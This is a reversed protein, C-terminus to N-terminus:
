KAHHVGYKYKLIIDILFFKDLKHFGKRKEIAAKLDLEALRIKGIRRELEKRYCELNAQEFCNCRECQGHTNDENFRLSQYRGASYFHGAHEVFGTTCSVCWKNQDRERIFANFVEIALEMLEKKSKKELRKRYNEPKM